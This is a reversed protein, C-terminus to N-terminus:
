FFCYWGDGATFHEILKNGADKGYKERFGDADLGTSVITPMRRLLRYEILEPIPMISEKIYAGNHWGRYEITAEELPNGADFIFLLGRSTLPNMKSYLLGERGHLHAVRIIDSSTRWRIEPTWLDRRIESIEGLKIFNKRATQISAWLGEMLDRISDAYQGSILLGPGGDKLWGSMEFLSQKQSENFSKDAMGSIIKEAIVSAPNIFNEAKTEM